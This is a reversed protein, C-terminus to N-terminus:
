VNKLTCNLARSHIGVTTGGDDGETELANDDDWVSVGHGKQYWSGVVKGFYTWTM